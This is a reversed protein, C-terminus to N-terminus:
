RSYKARVAAALDDCETWFDDMKKISEVTWPSPKSKPQQPRNLAQKAKDYANNLDKMAEPNGGHDPHYMFALRRYEKKLESLNKCTKFM